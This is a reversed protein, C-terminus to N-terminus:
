NQATMKRHYPQFEIYILCFTNSVILKIFSMFFLSKNFSPHNYFVGSVAFCFLLDPLYQIRHWTTEAVFVLYFIYILEDSSHSITKFVSSGILHELPM